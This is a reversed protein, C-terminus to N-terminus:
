AAVSWAGVTHRATRFARAEALHHYVDSLARHEVPGQDPIEVRCFDRLFRRMVGVDMVWYTLRQALEPMQEKIFALDFTGVGSGALVIKGEELWPEILGLVNREVQLLSHYQFNHHPDDLDRVLGSKLHMVLVEDPLRHIWTSDSPALLYRRGGIKEDLKDDTVTLGVELITDTYPDLGTTELDLWLYHM